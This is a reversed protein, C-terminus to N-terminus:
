KREKAIAEVLAHIAKHAEAKYPFIGDRLAIAMAQAYADREERAESLATLLQRVDHNSWTVNGYQSHELRELMALEEKTLHKMDGRFEEAKEMMSKFQDETLKM